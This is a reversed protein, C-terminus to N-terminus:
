RCQESFLPTHQKNITKTQAISIKDDLSSYEMRAYGTPCYDTGYTKDISRLYQEIDSNFKGAMEIVAEYEADTEEESYGFEDCLMDTLYDDPNFSWKLDPLNVSMMKERIVGYGCGDDILNWYERNQAHGDYFFAKQNTHVEHRKACLWALADHQDETLNENEANKLMRNRAYDGKRAYVDKKDMYAM